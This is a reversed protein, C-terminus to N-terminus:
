VVIKLFILSPSILKSAHLCINGELSFLSTNKLLNFINNKLLSASTSCHELIKFSLNVMAEFAINPKFWNSEINFSNKEVSYLFLIVFTSFILLM